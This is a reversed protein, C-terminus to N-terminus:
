AAGHVVFRESIYVAITIYSMILRICIGTLSVYTKVHMYWASYPHQWAPFNRAVFHQILDHLSRQFGKVNDADVIEQRLLNYVSVAGLAFRGVM